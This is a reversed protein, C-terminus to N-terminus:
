SAAATTTEEFDDAVPQPEPAKAADEIKKACQESAAKVTPKDEKSITPWSVKRIEELRRLESPESCAAYEAILQAASKKPIVSSGAAWKALTEGVDESLQPATAFASQFQKPLKITDREGPMDSKWTPTGNSGPLLLCQATMEYM